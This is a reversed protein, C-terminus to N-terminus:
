TNKNAWATQINAHTRTQTHTHKNVLPKQRYKQM